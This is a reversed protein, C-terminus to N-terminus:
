VNETEKVTNILKIYDKFDQEFGDGLKLLPYKNHIQAQLYKKQTMKTTDVGIDLRGLIKLCVDAPFDMYPMSEWDSLYQDILTCCGEFKTLFTGRDRKDIYSEASKVLGAKHKLIMPKIKHTIEVWKKNGEFKPWLTKPAVYIVADDPLEKLKKAVSLLYLFNSEQGQWNHLRNNETKIYWGGQEFDQITVDEQDGSISSLYTGRLRKAKVTSKTRVSKPIDPMDKVLTVPWDPHKCFFSILKELQGKDSEDIQFWILRTPRTDNDFTKWWQLIRKPGRIDRNGDTVNEVVIAVSDLDRYYITAKTSTQTVQVRRDQQYDYDWYIVGAHPYYYFNNTEPLSYGKWDRVKKAYHTRFSGRLSDLCNFHNKLAETYTKSSLTKKIQEAVVEEAFKALLRRITKDTPEDPGYSLSERSATVALSGIPAELIVSEGAFDYEKSIPYLVCGMRVHAHGKLPSNYVLKSTDLYKWGNGQTSVPADPWKFDPQNIVRPKVDLGLSIYKLAQAFKEVDARQIPFSIEIGNAEKTPQEGLFVCSVGKPSRSVAYHRAKGGQYSIVTYTDTYSLPVLRGLGWKGVANNTNEKSSYGVKCYENLMFSHSLGTGYDRFKFNSDWISPMTVDMPIHSTGADRQADYGNATIERWISKPKDSYMNAVLINIIKAFNDGDITMGVADGSTEFEREKTYTKM